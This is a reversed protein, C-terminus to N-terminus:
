NYYRKAIKAFATYIQQLELKIKSLVSQNIGIIFQATQQKPIESAPKNNVIMEMAMKACVEGQEYPSAGIALGGGDEAVFANLGVVPITANEMTWKMVEAPSVLIDPNDDRVQIKRYNSIVIIDLTDNATLIEKKWDSFTSVLRSRQLLIDKGWNTFAHIYTDDEVVTSSQDSIHAIKIGKTLDKKASLMLITEKLGELPVREYIGTINKATPDYGYEGEKANVGGFIVNIDPDNKYYSGVFRQADDDICIIIEPKMQDIMKRTISGAKRKYEISPHRKTDM